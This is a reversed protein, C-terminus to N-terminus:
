LREGNLILDDILRLHERVCWFPQLIKPLEPKSDPFGNVIFQKLAQSEPDKNLKTRLRTMKLDPLGPEAKGAVDTSFDAFQNVLGFFSRLDTRSEPVPFESLAKTKTADIKWGDRGMIYGCFPVESKGFEFKSM